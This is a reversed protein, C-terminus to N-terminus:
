NQVFFQLTDAFTNGSTTEQVIYGAVTTYFRQVAIGNALTTGNDRGKVTNIKVDRVGPVAQIADEIGSVYLVGDFNVRSFDALYENLAAIVNAQIVASYQGSYYVEASLYLEDANTSVINAKVGAPLFLSVYSALANIEATVLPVPTDEKAVKIKVIRNPYTKVSCRTIIRMTADVVAYQVIFDILQAIQDVGADFQFKLVKDQIWAPTGPAARDVITEIETKFLEIIGEHTWIAVAVIFLWLRWEAVRSPSNLDSLLTQEDDISPQLNTLLPQNNKEAILAQYIQDLTRRM